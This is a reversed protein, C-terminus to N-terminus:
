YHRDDERENKGSYCGIWKAAAPYLLLHDSMDELMMWSAMYALLADCLKDEALERLQRGWRNGYTARCQIVQRRFDRYTMIVIDDDRRDLMGSQVQERLSACLLLAADSIALDRPHCLGFRSEENLVFFAGNKHIQLEGDLAEDLYKNVWQRQNKIYEYDASDGESWYLVPALALQRYVRNIRRHGRESDGEWAFVEFDEISQCNQIDRDFHTTFYRSLGTNEYLVEQDRSNSFGESNGDYAILLGIRQAYRLARVLSKRHPFRTWDVPCYDAVYTEIATTMVSLLFQGGDDQDALYLLIACLLCYDMTDDFEEIGMWAMSRPPVKELKIVMENVILNWGLLESIFRRYNPLARKVEYYLDKNEDRVLWYNDILCRIERM